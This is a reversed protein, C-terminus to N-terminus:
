QTMVELVHNDENVMQFVKPLRDTLLQAVLHFSKDASQYTIPLSTPVWGSNGIGKITIQHREGDQEHTVEWKGKDFSHITM